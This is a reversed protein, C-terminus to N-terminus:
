AEVPANSYPPMPVDYTTTMLSGSTYTATGVKRYTVGDDSVSITIPLYTKGPKVGIKRVVTMYNGGADTTICDPLVNGPLFFGKNNNDIISIERGPWIKIEKLKYRENFGTTGSGWNSWYALRSINGAPLYSLGTGITASNIPDDSAGYGAPRSTFWNRWASTSTTSSTGNIYTQSYWINIDIDISKTQSGDPNDTIVPHFKYKPYQGGFTGRTAPENFWPRMSQSMPDLPGGSNYNTSYFPTYNTSQYTGTVPAITSRGYSTYSTNEQWYGPVEPIYEPWDAWTIKVPNREGYITTVSSLNDISAGNRIIAGFPYNVPKWLGDGAFVSFYIDENIEALEDFDEARVLMTPNQPDFMYVGNWPGAWRNATPQYDSIGTQWYDLVLIPVIETDEPSIEIGDINTIPNQFSIYDGIYDVPFPQGGVQPPGLTASGGTTILQTVTTAAFVPYEIYNDSPHPVAPIPPVWCEWTDIPGLETILEYPKLPDYAWAAFNIQSKGIDEVKELTGIRGLYMPQIGGTQVGSENILEVLGITDILDTTYDEAGAPKTVTGQYRLRVYQVPIQYITIVVPKTITTTTFGNFVALSVNYTGSVEYSKKPPNQGSYTTGDGFDWEWTNSDAGSMNYFTVGESADKTFLFDAHATAGSIGIMTGDGAWGCSTYGDKNRVWVAVGYQGPGLLPSPYGALPGGDDYNWSVTQNTFTPVGPSVLSGIEDYISKDLNFLQSPPATPKWGGPLNVFWEIAELDNLEATTYNSISATFTDATTGTTASLQITPIRPSKINYIDYESERLVYEAFWADETITHRVGSVVYYGALYQGPAIKHQIYFESGNDPYYPYYNYNFQKTMDITLSVINMKPISQYEFIDKNYETVQQQITADEIWISNSDPSFTTSIDLKAPGWAAISADDVSAPFSQSTLDSPNTNNVTIQNVLRDFGDNINIFKYTIDEEGDPFGNQWTDSPDSKFYFQALATEEPPAWTNGKPYFASDHKYYPAFRYLSGTLNDLRIMGTACGAVILEYFTKGVEVKVLPAAPAVFGFSNEFLEGPESLFGYRSAYIIAFIDAVQPALFTPIWTILYDLPAMGDPYEPTVRTDLFDQTIVIRNLFGILDTGNITIRPYDNQIYEVNVDTIFGYFISRENATDAETMLRVVTNFRIEPNANPDISSNRSSISFQGVDTQDWFGQFFDAGTKTSITLAGESIDVWSSESISWYSIQVFGGPRM